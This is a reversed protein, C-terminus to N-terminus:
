RLTTNQAQASTKSRQNDVGGLLIEREATRMGNLGGTAPVPRTSNAPTQYPQYPGHLAVWDLSALASAREGDSLEDSLVNQRAAALKAPTVIKSLLRPSRTNMYVMTRTTLHEPPRNSTLGGAMEFLAARAVTQTAAQERKGVNRGTVPDVANGRESAPTSREAHIMDLLDQPVGLARLERAYGAGGHSKTIDLEPFATARLWDIFEESKQWRHGREWRDNGRLPVGAIEALISNPLVLRGSDKGRFKGFVCYLVFRGVSPEVAIIPAFQVFAQYLAESFLVRGLNFSLTAIRKPAEESSLASGENQATQAPEHIQGACGPTASRGIRGRSPRNREKEQPEVRRGTETDQAPERGQGDPANGGAETARDRVVGVSGSFHSPPNPIGIETNAEDSGRSSPITFSPDPISVHRGSRTSRGESVRTTLRSDAQVVPAVHGPEQENTPYM